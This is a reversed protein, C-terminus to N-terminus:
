DGLLEEPTFIEPLSYNLTEVMPRLRRVISANAIHRCNWTLLVDVNHVTALAIHAADSDAKQPLLASNLITRAIEEAEQTSRLLTIGDMVALRQQAMNRDGAAVEDLVLQSTLLEHDGRQLEWWDRTMQQRAAQRLDRAPRAVIYSPITSEIYVRM